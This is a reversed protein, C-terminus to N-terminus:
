ADLEEDTLAEYNKGDGLPTIGKKGIVGLKNFDEKDTRLPSSESFQFDMEPTM